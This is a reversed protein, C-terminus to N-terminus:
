RENDRREENMRKLAEYNGFHAHNAYTGLYGVARSMRSTEAKSPEGGYQITTTWHNIIEWCDYLTYNKRKTNM